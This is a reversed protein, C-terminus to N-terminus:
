KKSIESISKEIKTLEINLNVNEIMNNKCKNDLNILRNNEKKMMNIEREMLISKHALELLNLKVKNEKIENIHSTESYDDMIENLFNSIM